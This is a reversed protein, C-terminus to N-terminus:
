INKPFVLVTSQGLSVVKPEPETQLLTTDLVEKTRGTPICVPFDPYGELRSCVQGNACDGHRSCLCNDLLVCHRTAPDFNVKTGQGKLRRGFDNMFVGNPDYEAMKALFAARAGEDLRKRIMNKTHYYLGSKGWHSRGQFKEV